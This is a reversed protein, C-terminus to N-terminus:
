AKGSHCACGGACGGAPASPKAPAPSAAPASGAGKSAGALTFSTQSIQRQMGAAAGCKACDHAMPADFHELKEENEGCTECRYEYLPM